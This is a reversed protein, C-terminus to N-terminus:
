ILPGIMMIGLYLRRTRHRVLWASSHIVCYQTLAVVRLLIACVTRQNGCWQLIGDAVAASITVAAAFSRVAEMRELDWEVNSGGMLVPVRFSSSCRVDRQLGGATLVVGANTELTGGFGWIMIGLPADVAVSGLIGGVAGSGLISGVAM